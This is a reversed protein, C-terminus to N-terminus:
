YNGNKIRRDRMRKHPEDKSLSHVLIDDTAKVFAKRQDSWFAEAENLLDRERAQDVKENARDMDDLLNENIQTDIDRLRNLVHDIGWDRKKGRMTWTDTLPFVLERGEVLNLLKFDDEVVVPIFQKKRRFVCLVGEKTFGCSLDRDYRKVAKNYSSWIM